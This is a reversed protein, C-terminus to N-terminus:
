ASQLFQRVNRQRYGDKKYLSVSTVFYAILLRFHLSHLRKCQTIAGKFRHSVITQRWAVVTIFHWANVADEVVHQTIDSSVKSEGTTSVLDFVAAAENFEATSCKRDSPRDRAGARLSSVATSRIRNKTLCDPTSSLAVIFSVSYFDACRSTTIAIVEVWRIRHDFLHCLRFPKLRNRSLLEWVSTPDRSNSTGLDPVTERAVNSRSRWQWDETTFQLSAQKSLRVWVYRWLIITVLLKKVYAV